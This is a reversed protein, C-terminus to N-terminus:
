AAAEVTATGRGRVGLISGPKPAGNPSRRRRSRPAVASGAAATPNVGQSQVSGSCAMASRAADVEFRLRPRPGSGVRRVGLAAANAYVWQRSVGLTQALAAADVLPREDAPARADDATLLLALRDAVLDALVVLQAEDLAIANSPNGAGLSLRQRPLPRQADTANM